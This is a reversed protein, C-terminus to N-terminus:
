TQGVQAKKKAQLYEEYQKGPAEIVPKSEPLQVPKRKPRRHALWEEYEGTPAEISLRPTAPPEPIPTSPIFWNSVGWISASWIINPQNPSDNELMSLHGVGYFGLEFGVELGEAFEPHFYYYCFFTDNPPYWPITSRLAQVQFRVGFTKFPFSAPPYLPAIREPATLIRCRDISL